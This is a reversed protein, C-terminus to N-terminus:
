QLKKINFDKNQLENKKSLKSRIQHLQKKRLPFLAISFALM